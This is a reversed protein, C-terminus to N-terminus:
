FSSEFFLPRPFPFSEFLPRPFSESSLFLGVLCDTQGDTQGDTRHPGDARGGTRGDVVVVVRSNGDDGANLGDVDDVVVVVVVVVVRSNGDDGGDVGQTANLFGNENTSQRRWLLTKIFFNRRKAMKFTNFGNRSM